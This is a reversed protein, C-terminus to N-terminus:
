GVVWLLYHFPFTILVRPSHIQKYITRQPLTWDENDPYWGNLGWAFVLM